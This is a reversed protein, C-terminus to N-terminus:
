VKKGMEELNTGNTIYQYQGKNYNLGVRKSKEVAQEHAIEEGCELCTNYGLDKRAEPYGEGCEVCVAMM